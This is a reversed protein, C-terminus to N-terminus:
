HSPAKFQALDLAKSKEALTVLMRKEAHRKTMTKGQGVLRRKPRVRQARVSTVEVGYYTRLASKVDIKTAAPHVRLVYTRETKLREAKETFVSGLIIRPLEV